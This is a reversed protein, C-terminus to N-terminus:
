ARYGKPKYLIKLLGIISLDIAIPAAVFLCGQQFLKAISPQSFFSNIELTSIRFGLFYLFSMIVLIGILLELAGEMDKRSSFMTNGIEFVIYGLLITLWTNQFINHAQALYLSGLIITTGFLFPAMGILFRRFPDTHEIHVSGLKVGHEQIKPILELGEAHVVLIIAMFYHALEHIFTGPLFIIALLYITINKSKTLRYFLFSLSKSVERSLLFLFFLEVLFLLILLM